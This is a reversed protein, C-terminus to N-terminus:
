EGSGFSSQIRHCQSRWRYGQSEREKQGRHDGSEIEGESVPSNETKIEQWFQLLRTPYSLDTNPKKPNSSIENRWRNKHISM